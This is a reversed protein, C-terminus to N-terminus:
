RKRPIPVKRNSEGSSTESVVSFSEKEKGTNCLQGDSVMTHIFPILDSDKDIERYQPDRKLYDYISQYCPRNRNVKIQKVIAKIRTRLDEDMVEKSVVINQDVRIEDNTSQHEESAMTM